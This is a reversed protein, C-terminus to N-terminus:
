GFILFLPKPKLSISTDPEHITFGFHSALLVVIGIGFNLFCRAMWLGSNRLRWYYTSVNAFARCSVDAFLTSEIEKRSVFRFWQSLIRCLQRGSTYFAFWYFYRYRVFACGLSALIYVLLGIFLKKEELVILYHAM